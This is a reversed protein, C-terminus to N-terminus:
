STFLGIDYLKGVVVTINPTKHSSRDRLGLSNELIRRPLSPVVNTIFLVWEAHRM